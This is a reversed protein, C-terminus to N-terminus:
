CHAHDTEAIHAATDGAIEALGVAVDIDPVDGLRRARAELVLGAVDDRRGALHRLM